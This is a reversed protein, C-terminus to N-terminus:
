TRVYWSSIHSIIKRFGFNLQAGFLYKELFFICIALLVHEFGNTMMSICVFGVILRETGGVLVAPM